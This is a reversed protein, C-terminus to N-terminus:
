IEIERRRLVRLFLASCVAIFVFILVALASGRGFDELGSTASGFATRYFYLGLVDTAGGPSGNVGEMVYPLEFWNFSGIFTLIFVVTAAPAVLPWIVRLLLAGDNAGDLRAAEIVERPIRQMGALFILAPFGLVHWTNVLILSGLATRGDGLWPLAWAGLGVMQLGQNVLGFVPNLFLKWLFGVIVASLVVPLFVIVQHLRHGPLAKLLAFALLYALGNQLVMLSAFVIVNHTFARLTWAAFPPEVLVQAFNRLGIFPGPAAGNFSRFADLFASLIPVVVFALMVTAAPVVLFLIWLGRRL